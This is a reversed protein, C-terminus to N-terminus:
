SWYFKNERTIVRGERILFSLLTKLESRKKGTIEAIEGIAKGGDDQLVNQIEQLHRRRLHAEPKNIVELCNDCHGCPQINEEGFYNRLYVERCGDTEIYGLMYELKKLLSNRHGELEQKQFPLRSVREEILRVLPMEGIAEFQLLQDHDQLVQLGKIVGNRSTDLKRQLYDLELHKKEAFAEAGFQRYITDLFASKRQNEWEDILERIRDQSAVFQLVVQPVVKEILQIVGLQNLVKLSSHVIKKPLHSRKTLAEISVQEAQEMESGLALNLEDCLVHYVQELQEQEPYSDKLRREAKVADSPNFLLIPFSETGDRGARGAQQYYAELSYPMEYHIVYRCDAKDIGMGFANTAVVLPVRGELWDEQIRNREENEFGAHYAATQIGLKRNILNALRECNRRTGGYILGAGNDAARSVAKLLKADKRNSQIVWWKLNPRDFGKSIINPSEFGLNKVIDDRVEPTATATLALWTVSDAIPELSPRIDRYSPRFDHGWQSICHAEDIAVLTINLKEMEAEFLDTKLREPSCYFLKYMGNRANVFRQEIEWFSLTSNVFTAPLGRENLQQVQDQMLAVLPSIVLTLGEQIAAPVQYCLSKGGGTPFLVLTEKRNLVSRIAEDQGTHFSTYGWIKRLSQEAKEFLSESM